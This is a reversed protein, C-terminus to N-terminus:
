HRKMMVMLKETKKWREAQFAKEVEDFSVASHACFCFGLRQFSKKKWIYVRMVPVEDDYLIMVECLTTATCMMVMDDDFVVPRALHHRHSQHHCQRSIQAGSLGAARGDERWRTMTFTYPPSPVFISFSLFLLCIFCVLLCRVVFFFCCCWADVNFFLYFKKEM